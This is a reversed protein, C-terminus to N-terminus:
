GLEAMAAEIEAVAQAYQNSIEDGNELIMKLAQYEESAEIATIASDLQAITKRLRDASAGGIDILEDLGAIELEVAGIRLNLAIIERNIEDRRSSIDGSESDGLEKEKKTLEASLRALEASHADVESQLAAIDAELQALSAQAAALEAQLTEINEGEASASTAGLLSALLSPTEPPVTPM